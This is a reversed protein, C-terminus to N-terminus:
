ADFHENYAPGLTSGDLILEKRSAVVFNLHIKFLFTNWCSIHRGSYHSGRFTLVLPHASEGRSSSVGAGGRLCVGRGRSASGRKFASGGKLPLGGWGWPCVSAESFM